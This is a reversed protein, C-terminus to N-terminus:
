GRQAPSRTLAPGALLDHCRGHHRFVLAATDDGMHQPFWLRTSGVVIWRHLAGVTENWPGRLHALSCAVAQLVCARDAGIQRSLGMQLFGRFHIEWALYFFFRAMAYWAFAQLSDGATRDRPYIARLESSGSGLWAIFIFLPM